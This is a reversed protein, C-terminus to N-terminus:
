NASNQAPQEAAAFTSALKGGARRAVLAAAKNKKKQAAAPVPAKSNKAPKMEVETATMTYTITVKDGVKMRRESQHKCGTRNGLPRGKQVAIMSDNVELILAPSRIDKTNRCCRRQELALVRRQCCSQTNQYNEYHGILSGYRYKM